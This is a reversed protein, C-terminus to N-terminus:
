VSKEVAELLRWYIPIFGACFSFLSDWKRLDPARHAFENRNVPAADMLASFEEDSLPEISILREDLVIRKYVKCLDGFALDDVKKVAVGETAKIDDIVDKWGNGYVRVLMQVLGRRLREELTPFFSLVRGVDEACGKAKARILRVLIGDKDCQLRERVEAYKAVLMWREGLPLVSEQGIEPIREQLERDIIHREARICDVRKGMRVERNAVLMTETLVDGPKLEWTIARLFEDIDYYNEAQAKVVVGIASNGTVYISRNHVKTWGAVMAELRNLRAVELPYLSRITIYVQIRDPDFGVNEDLILGSGRLLAFDTSELGRDQVEKLRSLSAPGLIGGIDKESDPHSGAGPFHTLKQVLLFEPQHDTHLDRNETLRNKLKAAIEDDAWVRLLIDWRSYLHFIMYNSVGALRLDTIVSEKM